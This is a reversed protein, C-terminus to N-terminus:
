LAFRKTVAVGDVRGESALTREVARDLAELFLPDYTEGVHKLNWLQSARIEARVSFRGLWTESPAALPSMKNSLLAIANREIFARESNPGADDPVDIWLVPMSAIHGSVRLELLREAEQAHTDARLAMPAISGVGWTPISLEDSKLMANGVHLRFISGRHNGSGTKSGAHARLRSRLTAKSDLSVAHTGVRTIRPTGDIASFMEGLERFFYVGRNPFTKQAMAVALPTGQGPLADLEALLAYLRVTDKEISIM